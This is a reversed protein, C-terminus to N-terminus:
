RIPRGAAPRVGMRLRIAAPVKYERLVMETNRLGCAERQVVFWWLAEGAEDLLRERQASADATSAAGAEFEVFNALAKEFAQTLRGLTSAKEQMIEHHLVDVASAPSRSSFGSPPRLTM